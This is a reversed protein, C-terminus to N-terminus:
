ALYQKTRVYVKGWSCIPYTKSTLPLCRTVFGLKIGDYKNHIIYISFFLVAQSLGPLYKPMQISLIERSLIISALYIISVVCLAM